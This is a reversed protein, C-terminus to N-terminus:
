AGLESAAQQVFSPDIVNEVKVTGRIAGASKYLTSLQRFTEVNLEMHPPWANIERTLGDWLPKLSEPTAKKADPVTAYKQYVSTYWDIDSDAKRFCTMEAKLVDVVARQNEKKSLWDGRTVWVENVWNPFEVWPKFLIKFNGQKAVDAAQDFHVPVAQVRGSLLAHMRAGSGGIEVIQVKNPDIGQKLLTGVMMVDTIDGKDNVAVINNPNTLDKLEHVHDANAVYVLDTSRYWLGIIKLDAGSEVASMTTIPDTEGLDAAGAVLTQTLTRMQDMRRTQPTYGMGPLMDFVAATTPMHIGLAYGLLNIRLPTKESARAALAPVVSAAAATKLVRRRSLYM